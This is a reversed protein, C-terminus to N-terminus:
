LACRIPQIFARAQFCSASIRQNGLVGQEAEETKDSILERWLSRPVSSCKRIMVFM